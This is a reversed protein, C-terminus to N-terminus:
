SEGLRPLPVDTDGVREQRYKRGDERHRPSESSPVESVLLLTRQHLRVRGRCDSGGTSTGPLNGKVPKPVDVVPTVCVFRDEPVKPPSVQDGGTPQNGTPTSGERDSSLEPDCGRGEVRSLVLLQDRSM